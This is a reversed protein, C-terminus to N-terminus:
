QLNTLRELIKLGADMIQVGSYLLQKLNRLSGFHVLGAETFHTGDLSLADIKLQTLSHAIM